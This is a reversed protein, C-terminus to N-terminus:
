PAMIIGVLLQVVLDASLDVATVAEVTKGIPPRLIEDFPLDGNITSSTVV